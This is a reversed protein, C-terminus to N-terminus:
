RPSASRRHSIEGASAGLRLPQLVWSAHCIGKSFWSGMTGTFRSARSAVLLSISQDTEAEFRQSLTCRSRQQLIDSVYPCFDKFVNFHGPILTCFYRCCYSFQLLLFFPFTSDSVKGSMVTFYGHDELIEPLTAVDTTLYGEYGAKGAWRRAGKENNKYEILVGLGGLHADTGSLLMARTPSCAAAAHHNLM